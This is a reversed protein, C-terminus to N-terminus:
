AEHSRWIWGGFLLHLIGFGVGTSLWVPLTLLCSVVGVVVLMAGLYRVQVLSVTGGSFVAAGYFLLWLAPLWAPVREHMPLWGLRIALLTTAFGSGATPLLVLLCRKASASQALRAFGGAKHSMAAIAITLAICFEAFWVWLWTSTHDARLAVITAEGASVGVAMMGKGSVATFTTSREISTRIIAVHDFVDDSDQFM